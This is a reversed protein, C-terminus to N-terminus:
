GERNEELHDVFCIPDRAGLDGTMLYSVAVCGGVCANGYASCTSCSSTKQRARFPTLVPAHRWLDLIPAEGIRGVAFERNPTALFTCPYITGDFSVSLRSRGAPCSGKEPLVPRGVAEKPALIDFDTRITMDPYQNRMRVVTRVVELFERPTPIENKMTEAVRGIPRLPPFKMGTGLERALRILPQIDRLNSRSVHAVIVVDDSIERLFPISKVAEDFVGAGRVRATNEQMGELSVAIQLFTLTSLMHRVVETYQGNTSMTVRMDRRQAEQVIGSFDPHLTPEGGSIHLTKQGMAQLEDLLRIIEDLSLEQIPMRGSDNYCHRCALNCRNTIDIGVDPTDAFFLRDDPQANSTQNM